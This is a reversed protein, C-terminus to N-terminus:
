RYSRQHHVPYQFFPFGAPGLDGQGYNADSLPYHEKDTRNLDSNLFSHTLLLGISQRHEKQAAIGKAWELINQRPGFELSFFLFDQGLPSRWEYWANELTPIQQANPAMGRLLATNLPNKQPPFFSNFQSYRNEAAKFGYEHNGCCLIYPVIGDLKGFAGSVFRWQEFSTQDGNVSDPKLIDNQEVMDGTCLVMQINLAKKQDKIWAILLEFLPQNRGFKTYTQPDPLIIMTYSGPQILGPGQGAAQLMCLAAVM